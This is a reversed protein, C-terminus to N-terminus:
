QQAPGYDLRFFVHTADVGDTVTIEIEGGYLFARQLILDHSSPRSALSRTLAAGDFILEYDIKNEHAAQAEFVWLDGPLEEFTQPVSIGVAQLSPLKKSCKDLEYDALVLSVIKRSRELSLLGTEISFSGVATFTDHTQAFFM